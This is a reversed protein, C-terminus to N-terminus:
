DIDKLRYFEQIAQTGKDGFGKEQLLEYQKLALQSLPLSDASSSELSLRLDKIFHKIFFGPEYDDVMMKPGQNTSQWSAASGNNVVNLFKEPDLGKETAFHLAEATSVIAGAICIQNALKAYQGNGSAGMYTVQKGMVELLPLIEKFAAEDGGAMISLTANIAGLDGGTVPCDLATIHYRSAEQAIEIALEPSSTTMDVVIAGARAHKLIGDDALYIEKVDSPFGVISFIVDADKVAEKITRAVTTKDSMVLAKEYTRNYVTVEYGADALHYAMPKGMVGTGIWTVKKM